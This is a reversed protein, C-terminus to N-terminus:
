TSQSNSGDSGGRPLNRFRAELDLLRAVNRRRRLVRMPNGHVVSGGAVSKRVVTLAGVAAGLGITVGPLIVSGAGVIAHRELVVPGLRPQRFHHPVTPNTMSGNVYDDTCSYVSVRSSLGSFDELTIAASNGFLYCGAAIHVHSGISVGERGASIISFCDIRVNDGISVHHAGFFQVTSHIRVNSGVSALGLRFLEEDSLVNMKADPVAMRGWGGTETGTSLLSDPFPEGPTDSPPTTVPNFRRGCPETSIWLLAAAAGRKGVLIAHQEFLRGIAAAAEETIGLVLFSPELSWGAEDPVGAGSLFAHGGREIMERLREMRAANEAVSLPESRPNCATIFAWHSTGTRELLEDLTPCPEGIRIAFGAAAPADVVYSTKRYAAALDERHM